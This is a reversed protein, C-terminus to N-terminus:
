PYTETVLHIDAPRTPRAREADGLLAPPAARVLAAPEVQPSLQALVARATPVRRAAGRWVCRKGTGYMSFTRAEWPQGPAVCRRRAHALALAAAQAGALTAEPTLGRARRWLGYPVVASSQVQWPSRARHAVVRGRIDHVADCELRGCRGAHIRRAFRTEWWGTTVLAAALEARTGPWEELEAAQAIASAIVALRAERGVEARDEWSPPLALLVALVLATM